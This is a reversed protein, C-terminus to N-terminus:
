SRPEVVLFEPADAAAPEFEAERRQSRCVICNETLAQTDGKKTMCTCIQMNSLSEQRRIKNKKFSYYICKIEKNIRAGQWLSVM